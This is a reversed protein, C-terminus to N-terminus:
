KTHLSCINWARLFLKLLNKASKLLLENVLVAHLSLAAVYQIDPVMLRCLSISGDRAVVGRGVCQVTVIFNDHCLFCKGTFLCCCFVASIEDPIAAESM